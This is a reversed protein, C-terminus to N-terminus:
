SMMVPNSAIKRVIKNHWWWRQQQKRQLHRRRAVNEWQGRICHRNHMMLVVGFVHMKASSSCSCLVFRVTHESWLKPKQKTWMANTCFEWKKREGVVSVCSLSLFAIAVFKNPNENVLASLPLPHLTASQWKLLPNESAAMVSLSQM